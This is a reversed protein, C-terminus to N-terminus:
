DDLMGVNGWAAGGSCTGNCVIGERDTMFGTEVVEMERSGEVMAVLLLLPSPSALLPRREGLIVFAIMASSDTYGSAGEFGEIPASTRLNSEAILGFLSGIRVAGAVGAKIRPDCVKTGPPGAIVMEPVGIDTSGLAVASM